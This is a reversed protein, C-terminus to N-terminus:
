RDELVRILNNCGGINGDMDMRVITNDSEVFVDIQCRLTVVIGSNGSVVSTSYRVVTRGDSLESTNQPPGWAFILDNLNRGTWEEQLPEFSAVCGYFLTILSFILIINKM